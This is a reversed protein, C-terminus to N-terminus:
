FVLLAQACAAKWLPFPFAGKLFLLLWCPPLCPGLRPIELFLCVFAPLCIIIIFLLARFVICIISFLWVLTTKMTTGHLVPRMSTLNFWVQDLHILLPFLTLFQLSVKDLYIYSSLNSCLESHRDQGNFSWLKIAHIDV